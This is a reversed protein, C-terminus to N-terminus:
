RNLIEGSVSRIQQVMEAFQDPRNVNAFQAGGDAVEFYEVRGAAEVASTVKFRGADLAQRLGSLASRHYAACLPEAREEVVPLVAIATSALCRVVLSRVFEATVLPADVPLFINWDFESSELAAVLGGLPGCGPRGDKVVRGYEAFNEDGGAIAVSSCVAELKAVARAVLTQGNLLLLAKNQGMRTSRGGALVFGAVPLLNM